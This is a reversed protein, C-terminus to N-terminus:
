EPLGDIIRAKPYRNKAARKASAKTSYGQSGDVTQGNRAVARYYGKGDKGVYIYVKM